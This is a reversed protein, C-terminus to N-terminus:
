NEPNASAHLLFLNAGKPGAGRVLSLRGAGRLRKIASQVTRESLGTRKVLRAISPYCVGEDNAHDALSLLILRDTPGLTEDEWIMSMVKVSM